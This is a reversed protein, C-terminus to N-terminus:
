RSKGISASINARHRFVILAITALTGALPWGAWDCRVLVGAAIVAVMAFSAAFTIKMNRFVVVWLMAALVAAWPSLLISFGLYAAVGKGGRFGHLCPFCNGLVLAFGTWPVVALPLLYLGIWALLMARGVDLLLIVGAWRWGASRFVNIVGANGSFTSRPDGKGAWKLLLIAFNISGALYALLMIGPFATM